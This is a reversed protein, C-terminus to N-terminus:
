PTVGIKNLKKVDEDIEKQLNDIIVKSDITEYISQESNNNRQIYNVCCDSNYYSLPIIIAIKNKCDKKLIDLKAKKDKIDKMLDQAETVQEMTIAHVSSAFILAMGLSIGLIIKKMIYNREM